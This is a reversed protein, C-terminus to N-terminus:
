RFCSATYAVEGVQDCYVGRQEFEVVGNHKDVGRVIRRVRRVIYTDDWDLIIEVNRSGNVPMVVGIPIYQNTEDDLVRLPAWVGGSIAMLNLAGVQIITETPSCERGQRDAIAVTITKM